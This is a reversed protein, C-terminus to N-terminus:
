SSLIDDIFNSLNSENPATNYRFQQMWDGFEAPSVLIKRGVKYHPLGNKIYKRLTPVSYGSMESLIKLGVLKM